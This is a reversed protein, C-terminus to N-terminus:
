ILKGIKLKEFDRALEAALECGPTRAADPRVTVVIDLPPLEAHRFVERVLRKVRNRAVARTAYRRGIAMGLRPVSEGPAATLMFHRSRVRRGSAFVRDFDAKRILRAQRPFGQPPSIM